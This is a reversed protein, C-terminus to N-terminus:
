QQHTLEVIWIYGSALADVDGGEKAPEGHNEDTSGDDDAYIDRKLKEAIWSFSPKLPMLSNDKSHRASIRQHSPLARDIMRIVHKWKEQFLAWRELGKQLYPGFMAYMQHM